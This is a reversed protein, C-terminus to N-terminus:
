DGAEWITIQVATSGSINSLDPKNKIYDAKKPDTQNWDPRPMTTGVPIGVIKM